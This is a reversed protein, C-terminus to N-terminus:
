GWIWNSGPHGKQDWLEFFIINGKYSAQQFGQDSWRHSRPIAEEMDVAFWVMAYLNQRHGQQPTPVCVGFCWGEEDGQQAAEARHNGPARWIRNCLHGSSDYGLRGSHSARGWAEGTCHVFPERRVASAWQAGPGPATCRATHALCIRHLLM